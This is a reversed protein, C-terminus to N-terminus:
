KDMSYVEINIASKKIVEAQKQDIIFNRSIRNLM